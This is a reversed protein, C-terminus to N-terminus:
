RNNFEELSISPIISTDDIDAKKRAERKKAERLKKEERRDVDESKKELQQQHKQIQKKRKAMNKQYELEEKSLKRKKLSFNAGNQNKDSNM